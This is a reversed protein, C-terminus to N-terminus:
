CLADFQEETLVRVECCLGHNHNWVYQQVENLPLDTYLVFTGNGAMEVEHGDAELCNIIVRTIERSAPEFVALVFQHAM